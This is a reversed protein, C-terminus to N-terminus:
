KVLRICIPYRYLKGNSAKVTAIITYILDIIVLAILLPIGILIFCLIVSIILYILVSIQFNLAETAHHRIYNSEDKKILFIVLPGIINGLPILYGSFVLLHALMGMNKEDSTPSDSAPISTQPIEPPHPPPSTPNTM